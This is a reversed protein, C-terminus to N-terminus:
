EATTLPIHRKAATHPKALPAAVRLVVEV